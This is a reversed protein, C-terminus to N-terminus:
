ASQRKLLINVDPEDNVPNVIENLYMHVGALLLHHLM